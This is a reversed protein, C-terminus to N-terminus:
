EGMAPDIPRFIPWIGFKGNEQGEDLLVVGIPPALEKVGHTFPM